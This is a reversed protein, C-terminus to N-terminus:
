SRSTCSQTSGAKIARVAQEGRGGPAVVTSTFQPLQEPQVLQPPLEAAQQLEAAAAAQMTSDPHTCLIVVPFVLFPGNNNVSISPLSM